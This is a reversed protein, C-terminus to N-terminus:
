RRGAVSSIERKELGGQTLTLSNASAHNCEVFAHFPGFFRELQGRELIGLVGSLVRPDYYRFFLPKGDPAYVVNFKRFHRHVEAFSLEQGRDLAMVACEEELLHQLLPATSDDVQGIRALYPAVDVLEVELDGTFLCEVETFKSRDIGDRGDPLGAADILAWWHGGPCESACQELLYKM